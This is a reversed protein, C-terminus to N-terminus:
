FPARGFRTFRGAHKRVQYRPERLVRDVIWEDFRWALRDVFALAMRAIM